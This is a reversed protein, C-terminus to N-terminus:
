TGACPIVGPVTARPAARRGACRRRSPRPCSPSGSPSRSSGPRAPRSSAGPRARSATAPRSCSGRGRTSAACRTSSRAGPSSRADRPGPHGPRDGPVGAPLARHGRGRGRRRAARAGPRAADRGRRGAGRGRRRRGPDPRPFGRRGPRTRGGGPIVSGGRCHRAPEPSVGQRHHGPGARERPRGRGPPQPRHRLRRRSGDRHGSRPGEHHLVARLRAAADGRGHRVGHGDGRDGPVAGARADAGAGPLPGRGPGRGAHGLTLVGGEPMADRANLALNLLANQLQGPDGKVVPRAALRRVEVRIRKDISHALLETVEDLVHHVDVPVSRVMGKRGFALIQRTLDAARRAGHLINVAYRREEPRELREALLEAFGMIGTLQNNFDHAIGGAMQGVAQLKESQRLSEELRRRERIDRCLTLIRREGGVPVVAANIEIPQLSGDPQLYGIELNRVRGTELCARVERANRERDQPATWEVVSRGLIDELRARGTLRLYEENAELVRGEGDIMVFGTGTTELLSHYLRESELLAAGSRRREDVVAGTLLGAVNVVVLFAQAEVIAQADGLFAPALVLASATTLLGTVAAGRLGLTLAALLM